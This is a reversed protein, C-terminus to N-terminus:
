YGAESISNSGSASIATIACTPLPVVAGFLFGGGGPSMPIGTGVVAANCNGGATGSTGLWVISTGNNTLSLLSAPTGYTYLPQATGSTTVTVSPLNTFAQPASPGPTTIVSCPASSTCGGPSIQADAAQTAVLLLCSLALAKWM